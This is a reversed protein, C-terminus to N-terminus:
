GHIAERPTSSGTRRLRMEWWAAGREYPEWGESVLKSVLEAYARRSALDDDDPAGPGPEFPRSAAVLRPADGRELATARFAGGEPAPSWSIECTVNARRRRAARATAGIALLLTAGLCGFFAIQLAMPTTDADTRLPTLPVAQPQTVTPAPRQVRASGGSGTDLPYADWLPEGSPQAPGAASATGAGILMGAILPLAYRQWSPHPVCVTMASPRKVLRGDLSRVLGKVTWELREAPL